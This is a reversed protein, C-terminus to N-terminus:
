KFAEKYKPLLYKILVFLNVVLLIASVVAAVMEPIMLRIGNMDGGGVFRYVVALYAPDCILLAISVYWFCAKALDSRLKCISDALGVFIYAAVLTAIAGVLCFWALQTESMRDFDAVVQVGLGLFRVKVFVGQCMAYLAHAGEHILFYCVVAVLIGIYQRTKKSM